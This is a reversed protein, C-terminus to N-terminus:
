NIQLAWAIFFDRLANSVTLIDIKKLAIAEPYRTALDIITLIYSYGRSSAPIIPGVLDVAIKQFPFDALKSILM